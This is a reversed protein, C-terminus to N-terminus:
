TRTRQGSSAAAMARPSGREPRSAFHLQEAALMSPIAFIDGLKAWSPMLSWPCGCRYMAHLTPCSMGCDLSSRSTSCVIRAQVEETIMSGFEQLSSTPLLALSGLATDNPIHTASDPSLDVGRFWQPDAHISSSISTRITIADPTSLVQAPAHTNPYM